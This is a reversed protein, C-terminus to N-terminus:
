LPKLNGLATKCALFTLYNVCNFPFLCSIAFTPQLQMPESLCSIPPAKQVLVVTSLVATVNNVLVLQWIGLFLCDKVIM